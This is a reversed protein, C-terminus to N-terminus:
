RPNISLLASEGIMNGPRGNDGFFDRKQDLADGLKILLEARGEVGALENGPGSQMGKALQAM